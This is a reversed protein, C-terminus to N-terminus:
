GCFFVFNHPNGSFMCKELKKANKVDLKQLANNPLYVDYLESKEPFSIEKMKKNYNENM